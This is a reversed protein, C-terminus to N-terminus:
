VTLTPILDLSFEHSKRLTFIFTTGVGVRSEAHIKGGHREVIKKCISLGLGTGEFRDAHFRRFPEFLQGVQAPDIGVGNDSISFRWFEGWDQCDIAVRPNELGRFKIANAILNQFLQMMQTRTGMVMPLDSSYELTANQALLSSKLNEEVAALIESIAIREERVQSENEVKALALLDQILGSMRETGNVIFQLLEVSEPKMESEALLEAAMKISGLPGKLDHAVISSFQELKANVATLNLTKQRLLEENEKKRTIDQHVIYGKAEAHGPEKVMAVHHLVWRVQGDPLVIRFEDEYTGVQQRHEVVTKEVRQRDEPHVNQLFAETDWLFDEKFGFLRSLEPSLFRVDSRIGPIAILGTLKLTLALKDKAEKLEKATELIENGHKKRDTIDQIVTILQLPTGDQGCIPQGKSQLWRVEGSQLTIRFEIDLERNDRIVGAGAEQVFERDEPHINKIAEDYSWFETKSDSFTGQKPRYSRLVLNNKLDQQYAAMQAAEFALHLWREGSVNQSLHVFKGDASDHKAPPHSVEHNEFTM